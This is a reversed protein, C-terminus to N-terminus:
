CRWTCAGTSAAPRRRRPVRATRRPSAPRSRRCKRCRARPDCRSASRCGPPAWARVRTQLTQSLRFDASRECGARKGTNVQLSLGGRAPAGSCVFARYGRLAIPSKRARVGAYPQLTFPACAVARWVRDDRSRLCCRVEDPGDASDPVPHSLWEMRRRSGERENPIVSPAPRRPRGRGEERTGRGADRTGSGAEGRGVGCM